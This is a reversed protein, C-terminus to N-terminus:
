RPLMRNYLRVVLAAAEAQTLLDSGRFTPGSELMGVEQLFTAANRQEATLGAMDSFRHRVEVKSRALDGLQLVQAAWVAFEARTIADDPRFTTDGVVPPLIGMNMANQVIFYAPSDKALDTYPVQAPGYYPRYHDVLALWRLAQIRTLSEAPELAGEVVGRQLVFRLEGEAWHGRLKALAERRVQVPQGDWGRPAGTHADLGIGLDPWLRYVLQAEMAPAEGQEPTWGEPPVAEYRLQVERDQFFLATAKDPPLIGAPSPFEAGETWNTHVAQWQLTAPDIVVTVGDGGATIGNVYREFRFYLGEPGYVMAPDPGYALRLQSRLPSMYRQVLAIAEARAKEATAADVPRPQPMMIMGGDETLMGKAVDPNMRWADTLLGTEQNFRVSADGGEVHYDDGSRSAQLGDPSVGLFEAALAVAAEATLPLVAPVVPAEAGEPVPVPDRYAAPIDGWSQFQGTYANIPLDANEFRYVLRFTPVPRGAIRKVMQYDPMYTLRPQAQAQWFALAQEPTVDAVNSGFRAINPWENRFTTVALTERDLGLVVQSGMVPHGNHQREWIFSYSGFEPAVHYIGQGELEALRDAAMPVLSRLTVEDVLTRLLANAKQRVEDSPDASNQPGTAVKAPSGYTEFQVIQGTVADVQASQSGRGSEYADWHFSWAPGTPWQNLYAHMYVGDGETWVPLGSERLIDLAQEQTVKVQARLDEFGMPQEFSYGVSEVTARGVGAPLAIAVAAAMAGAVVRRAKLWVM